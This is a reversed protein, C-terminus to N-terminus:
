KKAPRVSELRGLHLLAERTTRQAYAPNHTVLVLATNTEASLALLLDIVSDATKEDLNGTPEDALLLEPNNM